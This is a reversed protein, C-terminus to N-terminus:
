DRISITKIKSLQSGLRRVKSSVCMKIDLQENQSKFKRGTPELVIYIKKLQDNRVSDLPM